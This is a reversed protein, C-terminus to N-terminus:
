FRYGFSIIPLTILNFLYFSGVSQPGDANPRTTFSAGFAPVKFGVTFGSPHLYRFGLGGGVGVVLDVTTFGSTRLWGPLAEVFVDMFWMSEDPRSLATSYGFGLAFAGVSGNSVLPVGLNAAVFAYVHGQHVDFAVLGLNLGVHIGM